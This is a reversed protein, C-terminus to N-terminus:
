FQQNTSRSLNITGNGNSKIWYAYGSVLSDAIQYGSGSDYKYMFGSLLNAPTTTIDSVLVNYDYVGILNWGSNVNVSNYNTSLIGESPWEDGTNYLNNGNNNLWYGTGPELTAVSQYGNDYKFIGASPNRDSWWTDINQNVPNLGPISVLNWGDNVLLSLQFGHTSPQFQFNAFVPIHDSSYHIANAITQGVATNPPRNISDNYHNGDNGYNTFSGPVYYVGGDQIIAPSMLIMDFRDDMGGTSGGGFQRVRPSQTHYSAYSATNWTGTLNLLDIFYGPTSQNKLKQYASENSSYINFDGCVMYNSNPPLQDTFNRLTTVESLRQQENSSGTSAKLHLSFIRLTDNSSNERIIFENINRLDTSIVINALFAFATTRYFIANDSDPGNNFIGAVYDSSIPILVSSLFENVGSQSTMEQVVLVDPMVNQIVTRFYPNRTGSDSGPYNLLNYSMIKRTVQPLVIGQFLILLLFVTTIKKM